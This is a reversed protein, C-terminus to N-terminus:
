NLRKVPALTSTIIEYFREFGNRGCMQTGELTITAAAAAMAFRLLDPSFDCRDLCRDLFNARKDLLGYVLGAVMADGAGQVAKVEVPLAPSYHVGDATILMAGEAGLSVCAITVGKKIINQRCFDAIAERTPLKVGFTSELEFLNPKILFPAREGLDVALRLADGETDLVVIGEWAACLRAYFDAPVSAPRSGSLILIGASCGAPPNSRSVAVKVSCDRLLGGLPRPIERTIKKILEEQAEPPVYAGPQNLETMTGSEDYLKINVRVAGDVTVFDYVIGHEDLKDTIVKGNEHFNFGMCVPSLGLNKLAVCVNVGKGAADQRASKIRNMGGHTFEDTHWSWDLCPNLNVVTIPTDM